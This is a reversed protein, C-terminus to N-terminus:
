PEPPIEAIAVIYDDPDLDMLRAGKGGPRDLPINAIPIVLIKGKASAIVVERGGENM